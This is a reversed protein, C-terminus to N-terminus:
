PRTSMNRILEMTCPFAVLVCLFLVILSFPFGFALIVFTYALQKPFNGFLFSEIKNFLSHKENKEVQKNLMSYFKIDMSSTPEPIDRDGEEWLSQLQEFEDRYESNEELLKKLYEEQEETTNESLYDVVLLKFDKHEM